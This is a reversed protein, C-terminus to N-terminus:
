PLYLGSETRTMGVSHPQKVWYDVISKDLEDVVTERQEQETLVQSKLEQQANASSFENMEQTPSVDRDQRSEWAVWRIWEILHEDPEVYKGWCHQKVCQCSDGTCECCKGDHYSYCRLEVYKESPCPGRLDYVAGDTHKIYRGVEWTPAFQEPEIRELLAWRHPVNWGGDANKGQCFIPFTYGIAKTGLRHPMWRLEDPAWALKILPRGDRTGTIQDIRKQYAARNFTGRYKSM